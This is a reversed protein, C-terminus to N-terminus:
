KIRVGDRPLLCETLCVSAQLPALWQGAALLHFRGRFRFQRVGSDSKRWPQALTEWLISPPAVRKRTQGEVGEKNRIRLSELSM